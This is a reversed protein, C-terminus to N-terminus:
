SVSPQVRYMVSAFSFFFSALSKTIWLILRLVPTASSLSDFSYECYFLLIQMAM